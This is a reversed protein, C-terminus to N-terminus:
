CNIPTTYSISKLQDNTSSKKLGTLSKNNTARRPCTKCCCQISRPTSPRKNCNTSASTSWNRSLCVLSSCCLLHWLTCRPPESSPKSQLYRWTSLWSGWSTTATNFATRLSWTTSLAAQSWYCSASCSLSTSTSKTSCRIALAWNSSNSRTWVWISSKTTSSTRAAPAFACVTRGQPSRASARPGPTTKPKSVARRTRTPTLIAPWQCTPLGHVAVPTLTKKTKSPLSCAIV